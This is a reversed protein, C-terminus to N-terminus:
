AGYAPAGEADVEPRHSQVWVVAALVIVAGGLQPLSLIQGHVPWAIVAGLVPELTAVVAARVGPIHRVALIMLMFPVLTGVIAVGFGLLIHDLSAFQDWPFTWPPRVLLWFLAAFGAAWALATPPGYRHGAREAAIIYISFAIASGFAAIVGRVDIQDADYAGVVFFCGVASLAVAAWLSPALHRGHFFRLWLLILLPGLYQIVLAVGIDLRSIALFYTAHVGALGAIGFWAMRPVDERAIRLRRPSLLLLAGVLLLWTITSRM